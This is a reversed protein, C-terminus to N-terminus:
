GNNVEKLSCASESFWIAGHDRSYALLLIMGFIASGVFTMWGTWFGTWYVALSPILAFGIGVLLPLWFLWRAWRKFRLLAFSATLHAIFGGVVPIALIYLQTDTLEGFHKVALSDFEASFAAYAPHFAEYIAALVTLVLSLLYLQVLRRFTGRNLDVSM